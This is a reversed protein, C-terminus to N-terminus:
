GGGGTGGGTGTGTGGGGSAEEPLPKYMTLASKGGDWTVTLVLRYIQTPEEEPNEADNTPVDDLTIEYEWGYGEYIPDLEGFDGADTGGDDVFITDDIELEAMKQALLVWAHRATRTDDASQINEGNKILLPVIALAVIGLAVVVEILTFGGRNDRRPGHDTTRPRRRM